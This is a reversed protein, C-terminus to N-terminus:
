SIPALARTVTQPKLGVKIRRLIEAHKQRQRESRMKQLEQEVHDPKDGMAEIDAELRLIRDRIRGLGQATAVTLRGASDINGKLEKRMQLFRHRSGLTELKQRLQQTERALAVETQRAAEIDADMKMKQEALQQVETVIREIRAILELAIEDRDDTAATQLDAKLQTEQEAVEALRHEIRKRQFILEALAERLRHLQRQHDEILGSNLLEPHRNETGGLLNSWFGTWLLRFRAALNM